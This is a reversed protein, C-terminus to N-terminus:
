YLINLASFASLSTASAAVKCMGTSPFSLGTRGSGRSTAIKSFSFHVSVQSEFEYPDGFRTKIKDQHAESMSDFSVLSYNGNKPHSIFQLRQNGISKEKRYYKASLGSEVIGLEFVFVTNDIMEFIQESLKLNKTIM